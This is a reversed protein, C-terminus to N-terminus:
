IFLRYIQSSIIKVNCLKIHTRLNIDSYFVVRLIKVRDNLYFSLFSYCVKNQMKRVSSYFVTHFLTHTCIAKMIMKIKKELLKNKKQHSKKVDFDFFLTATHEFLFPSKRFRKFKGIFLMANIFLKEFMRGRSTFVDISRVRQACFNLQM